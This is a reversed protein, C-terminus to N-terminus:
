CIAHAAKNCPRNCFKFEFADFALTSLSRADRYLVGLDAMDHDSYTLANVLNLADLQFIVKFAGLNSAGEIAEICTSAKAQLASRLHNLRGAGAAVFSGDDAGAIFGWACGHMQEYFTVDFNVKIYNSPPLQWAENSPQVSASQVGDATFELL